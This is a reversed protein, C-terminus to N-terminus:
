MKQFIRGIVEDLSRQEKDNLKESIELNEKKFSTSVINTKDDISKSLEKIKDSIKAKETEIDSLNVKIMTNKNESSLLESSLRTNEDQYFKIKRNKEEIELQSSKELSNIKENIKKTNIIYRSITNKLESNNIEFSRNKQNVIDLNDEKKELKGKLENNQIILEENKNTLQYLREEQRKSNNNLINNREEIEKNKIEIENFSKSIKENDIKLQNNENSLIQIDNKFIKYKNLIDKYKNELELYDNTLKDRDLKLSDVKNQLNKIELRNDLIVKLTNKKVKKKLYEYLENIIHDKVEATIKNTNSPLIAQYNPNELIENKVVLPKQTNQIINKNKDLNKKKTKFTLKKQSKLNNNKSKVETDSDLLKITADTIEKISFIRM